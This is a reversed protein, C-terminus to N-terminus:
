LLFQGQNQAAVLGGNELLEDFQRELAEYNKEAEAVAISAMAVAEKASEVEEPLAALRSQSSEPAPSGDVERQFTESSKVATYEEMKRHTVKWKAKALHSVPTDGLYLHVFYNRSLLPDRGLSTPNEESSIIRFGPDELIRLLVGYLDIEMPTHNLILPSHDYNLVWYEMGDKVYSVGYQQSGRSFLKMPTFAINEINGVLKSGCTDKLTVTIMGQPAIDKEGLNDATAASFSINRLVIFVFFSLFLFNKRM